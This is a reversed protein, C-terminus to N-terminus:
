LGAPLRGAHAALLEDVLAEIEDLDLSRGAKLVRGAKAIWARHEWPDPEQAAAVTAAASVVAVLGLTFATVQMM